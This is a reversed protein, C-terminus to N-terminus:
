FGESVGICKYDVTNCTSCKFQEYEADGFRINNLKVLESSCKKCHMSILLVYSNNLSQSM